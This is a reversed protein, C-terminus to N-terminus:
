EPQEQDGDDDGEEYPDYDDPEQDGSLFLAPKDACRYEVKVGSLGGVHHEDGNDENLTLEVIVIMSDDVGELARRLEGVTMHKNVPKVEKLKALLRAFEPWDKLFQDRLERARELSIDELKQPLAM